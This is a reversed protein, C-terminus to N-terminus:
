VEREGTPEAGAVAGGAAGLWRWRQGLRLHIEDPMDAVVASGGQSSCPADKSWSTVDTRPACAEEVCGRWGRWGSWVGEM